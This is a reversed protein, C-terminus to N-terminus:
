IAAINGVVHPKEGESDRLEFQLEGAGRVRHLTVWAPLLVPLKFDCHVKFKGSFLEEEMEAVLRSLSWMGHAIASRFGFLKATMSFLHIPNIDGSVGAYRRGIDATAQWSSIKAGQLASGGAPKKKDSKTKTKPARALFVMVEEWLTEDGNHVKTHLDFEQGRETDRHGELSCSIDLLEDAGMPRHQTITNSVHVLGMLKLPFASSTLMAMHLPSAMIHPYTVPLQEGDNFECVKRYARLKDPPATVSKIAATIRPVSKGEPLRTPLKSLFVKPYTAIVSPFETFTLEAM